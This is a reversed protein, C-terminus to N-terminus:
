LEEDTAASEGTWRSLHGASVCIDAGIGAIYAPIDYSGASTLSLQLVPELLRQVVGKLRARLVWPTTM